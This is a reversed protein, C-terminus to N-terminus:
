QKDIFEIWRARVNEIQYSQVSNLANSSMFTRLNLNSMIERVSNSLAIFDGDDVLFGDIGNRIIEKPGEPCNYAVIPLGCGKAEILVMPFAEFYSTMVYLSCSLYAAQVDKIPGNLFVFDNLELDTILKLLNEKEPGDGFIQISDINPDNKLYVAVHILREIGKEKSLRGVCIIRRTNLDAIKNSEFPLSNPICVKKLCFAYNKMAAPSLLVLGNLYNYTLRQMFKTFVSFSARSLHEMGVTKVSTGLTIFPLLVNTSHGSGIVIDIGLRQLLIRQKISVLIYSLIRFPLFETDCKRVSVINVESSIDFCPPLAVEDKKVVCILTLSFVDILSNAINICARETGGVKSLAGLTIAIRKKKM